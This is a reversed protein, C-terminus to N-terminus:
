RIEPTIRFSDNFGLLAAKQADITAKAREEGIGVDRGRRESRFRGLSITAVPRGSRM